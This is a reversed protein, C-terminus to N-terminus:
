KYKSKAFSTDRKTTRHPTEQPPLITATAMNTSGCLAQGIQLLESQQLKNTGPISIVRQRSYEDGTLRNPMM